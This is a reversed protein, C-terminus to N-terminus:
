TGSNGFEVWDSDLEKMSDPDSDSDILRDSAVCWSTNLFIFAVAILSVLQRM